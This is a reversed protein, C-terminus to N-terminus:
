LVVLAFDAEVFPQPRRAKELGTGLGGRGDVAALHRDVAAADFGAAFHAQAVLQVDALAGALLGHMHAAEGFVAARCRLRLGEVFFGGLADDRAFFFFFEVLEGGGLAGAAFAAGGFAFPPLNM